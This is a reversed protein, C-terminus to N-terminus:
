KTSHPPSLNQYRAIFNTGTQSRAIDLTASDRNRNTRCNPTLIEIKYEREPYSPEKLVLKDFCCCLYVYRIGTLNSTM